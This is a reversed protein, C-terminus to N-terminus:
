TKKWHNSMHYHVYTGYDQHWKFHNQGKRQMMLHKIRMWTLFLLFFFLHNSEYHFFVNATNSSWRVYGNGNLFIFYYKCIWHIWQCWCQPKWEIFFKMIPFVAYDFLKSRLITVPWTPYCIVTYSGNLLMITILNICIKDEKM